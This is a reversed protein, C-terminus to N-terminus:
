DNLVADQNAILAQQQPMSLSEAPIVLDEPTLGRDNLSADCVFIKSVDYEPLAALVKGLTRTGLQKGDQGKLLQWVGDDKFLVSVDQEFVGAVLISEVAEIARSSQYPPQRLLFLIRRSNM